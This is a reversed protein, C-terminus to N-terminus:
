IWEAFLRRKCTVDLDGLDSPYTNMSIHVQRHSQLSFAMEIAAGLTGPDKVEPDLCIVLKGNRNSYDLLRKIKLSNISKGLIAVTPLDIQQWNALADFVGETIVLVKNDLPMTYPAFIYPKGDTEAAM